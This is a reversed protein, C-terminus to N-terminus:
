KKPSKEDALAVIDAIVAAFSPPALAFHQITWDYHKGADEATCGLDATAKGVYAARAMEPSDCCIQLICCCEPCESMPPKKAM